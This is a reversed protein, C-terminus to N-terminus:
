AGEEGQANSKAWAGGDVAPENMKVEGAAYWVPKLVPKM